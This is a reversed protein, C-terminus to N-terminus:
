GGLVAPVEEGGSGNPRRTFTRQSRVARRAKHLPRAPLPSRRGGWFRTRRAFRGQHPLPSIVCRDCDRDAPSGDPNALKVARAERGGAFLITIASVDREAPPLDRSVCVVCVVGVFYRMKLQFSGRRIHPFGGSIGGAGHLIFYAEKILMQNFSVYLSLCGAFSARM